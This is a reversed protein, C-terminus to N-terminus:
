SVGLTLVEAKFNEAPYQIMVMIHCLEQPIPSSSNKLYYRQQVMTTPPLLKPPDNVPYKLAVWPGAGSITAIENPLLSITAPSGQAMSQMTLYEVLATAGPPSVILSGIVASCPYASGQDEFETLDRYLIGGLGINRGALLTYVGTTTEISAICGAGGVVQGPPSWAGEDTRFKYINTSGDSIFLGVDEGARHMSMYVSAPNFTASLLQAINFGIESLSDTFSFLQSTNTYCYMSGGDTVVANLSSVGFNSQYLQSYFSATSTGYIIYMDDKTFVVLGAPMSALATVKGPFSFVNAPPWSEEPSGYTCDPGAAFYVYNDVCGWLRGAHYIIQSFTGTVSTTVPNTLAPPPNNEDDIPAEIFIDLEGDPITPDYAYGYVAGTDTYSWKGSNVAGAHTETVGSANDCTISTTTSSVIDFNGNNGANAFGTITAGGTGAAGAFGNNAGAPVTNLFNYTTTTGTTFTAQTLALPGPILALFYWPGALGDSDQSRYVTVSDVLSYGTTDTQTGALFANNAAPATLIFGTPTGGTVPTIAYTVIIAKGADAAAFTLQGTSADCVFQGTAPTGSEIQTYVPTGKPGTVVLPSPTTAGWANTPSFLTAQNVTYVYPDAADSGPITPTLVATVGTLAEVPFYSGGNWVRSSGTDTGWIPLTSCTFTSTSTGTVTYNGNIYVVPDGENPLGSLTVVAGVWLNNGASTGFTVLLPGDPANNNATWTDVQYTVTSDTVSSVNLDGVDSSTPASTSVQGTTSNDYSYTYSWGTSPVLFGTGLTFTPAVTPVAIGVARAPGITGGDGVAVFDMGDALYLVNGVRQFSTQGTTSKTFLSTLSTTDFSYIGLQTDVLTTIDGALNQYSYFAQPFEFTNGAGTTWSDPNLAAGFPVKGSFGSFTYLYISFGTSGSYTGYNSINFSVTTSGAPCSLAVALYATRYLGGILQTNQYVAYDNGQNDSVSLVPPEVSYSSFQYVIADGANTTITNTYLPSPGSGFDVLIGQEKVVGGSSSFSVMVATWETPSPNQLDFTLLSTSSAQISYMARDCETWGAPVGTTILPTNVSSTNVLVFDTANEPSLSVIVDGSAGQAMASTNAANFGGGFAIPCYLPFGPRRALTNAPTLEMNGGGGWLTDYRSIITMGMASIPTFVPSRNVDIGSHWLPIYIQGAEVNRKIGPMIAM